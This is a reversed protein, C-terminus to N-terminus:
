YGGYQPLYRLKEENRSENMDEQLGLLERMGDQYVQILPHKIASVWDNLRMFRQAQNVKFLDDANSLNEIALHAM